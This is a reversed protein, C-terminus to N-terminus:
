GGRASRWPRRWTSGSRRSMRNSSSSSSPSSSKRSRSRVPSTRSSPCPMARPRGARGPSRRCTLGNRSQRRPAGRPMPSPHMERMSTPCTTTNTRKTKSSSSTRKTARHLSWAREQCPRVQMCFHAVCKSFRTTSSADAVKSERASAARRRRSVCKSFCPSCVDMAHAHAEEEEEVPSTPDVTDGQGEVRSRKLSSQQQTFVVSARDSMPKSAM